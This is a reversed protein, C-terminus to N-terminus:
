NHGVRSLIGSPEKMRPIRWALISSPNCHGEEPSKRVWPDFGNEQMELKAPPKKVWQAVQSAMYIYVYIHIVSDSQQIGSLLM